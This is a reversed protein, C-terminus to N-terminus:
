ASEGEGIYAKLIAAIEYAAHCKATHRVPADMDELHIDVKTQCLHEILDFSMRRNERGFHECLEIAKRIGPIMAPTIGATIISNM